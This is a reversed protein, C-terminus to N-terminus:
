NNKLSRAYNTIETVGINNTTFSYVQESNKSTIRIIISLEERSILYLPLSVNDTYFLGNSYELNISKRLDDTGRMALTIKDSSLVFPKSKGYEYLEIVTLNSGVDLPLYLLVLLDANSTYSNSFTGEFAGVVSAGTKDGFEDVINTYWWNGELMDIQETYTKGCSSCTHTKIGESTYTPEKTIVSSYSHGKAKVTEQQKIVEGCVSCHSGETLGNQTCTPAIASDKAVTHGKAAITEQKKTIEGCVSCHSGETLGNQICTAAVEADVVLTHGKAPITRPIEVQEGCVSCHKGGISGDMTCTAPIEDDDVLTHGKSPVVIPEEINELCISCHKGGTFGDTTCTAPIDQNPVPTHGSKPISEEQSEGCSCYRRNIGDETCTPKKIVIWEEFEHVHNNCSSLLVMILIITLFISTNSIKRM